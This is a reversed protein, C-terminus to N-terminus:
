IKGNIVEKMPKIEVFRLQPKIHRCLNNQVIGDRQKVINVEILDWTDINDEEVMGKEVWKTVEAKTPKHLFIVNDSDQYAAKSERIDREGTPRNDKAEDNLQTLVVVPIDFSLAIQKLQRSLWAVERERSSFQGEAELLQLYDVILLQAKTEYLRRKIQSITSIGANLYLQKSKFAKNTDIIAKREEETFSKNRFKINDIGTERVLVRKWLSESRMERTVFLTNLNKAWSSLNQMVFLTKGVGSRAGVLNLEGKRLSGLVFNLFSMSNDYEYYKHSSELPTNMDLEFRDIIDSIHDSEVINSEVKDLISQALQVPNIDKSMLAETLLQKVVRSEYNRRLLDLHTNNIVLTAASDTCENLYQMSFGMDMLHLADPIVGEADLKKMAKCIEINLGTFYHHSVKVLDRGGSVMFHGIIAKETIM